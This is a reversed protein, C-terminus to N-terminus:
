RVKQRMSWRDTVKGGAVAYVDATRLVTVGDKKAKAYAVARGAGDEFCEVVEFLIGPDAFFDASRAFFGEKGAPAKANHETYDDALLAEVAATDRANLAEYLKLVVTKTM